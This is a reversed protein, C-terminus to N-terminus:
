YLTQLIIPTLQTQLKCSYHECMETFEWKLALDVNHVTFLTLFNIQSSTVSIDVGCRLQPTTHVSMLNDFWHSPNSRGKNKLMGRVNNEIFYLTVKTFRDM